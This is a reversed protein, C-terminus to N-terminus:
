VESFSFFHRSGGPISGQVEGDGVCKKLVLARVVRGGLCKVAKLKRYKRERLVAQM